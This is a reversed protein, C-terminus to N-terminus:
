GLNSEDNINKDFIKMKASKNTFMFFLNLETCNALVLYILLQTKGSATKRRM